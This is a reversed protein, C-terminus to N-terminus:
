RREDAALEKEKKKKETTETTETTFNGQRIGRDPSSNERLGHSLLVM